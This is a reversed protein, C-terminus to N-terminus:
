FHRTVPLLCLANLYATNHPLWVENSEFSPIDVGSRDVYPRDDGADRYTVGNVVSGPVAVADDGDVDGLTPAMHVKEPVAYAWRLDGQASFAHVHGAADGVVIEDARDEDIDGVAISSGSYIDPMGLLPQRWQVEGTRADFRWLLNDTRSVAYLEPHGDHDADAVVPASQFDDGTEHKWRLAGRANLSFVGWPACGFLELKGDGDVDAAAMACRVSPAPVTETERYQWLRKGDADFCLVEQDLTGLVICERGDGAVDVWLPGGWEVKGAPAEWRVTGDRANLLVLRGDANAVALLRSDGVPKSSLAAPSIVRLKWDANRRWLEKGRADLCILEKAEADELITEIGPSPHVDACLPPAYLNSRAEYQWKLEPESGSAWAGLALLVVCGALRRM